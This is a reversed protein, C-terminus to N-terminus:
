GRSWLLRGKKLVKRALVFTTAVPGAIQISKMVWKLKDRKYFVYSLLQGAARVRFHWQGLWEQHKFSSALRHEAEDISMAKAKTTLGEHSGRRYLYLADALYIVNGHQALRVYADWDQGCPLSEDFGRQQVVDTRVILGSAGCYPNGRKLKSLSVLGSPPGLHAEGNNLYRYSCLAAIPQIPSEVHSLARMQRYIKDSLWVDDDDLFAVWDSQAMSAGFNRAANAGRNKDFRFYRIEGSLSGEEAGVKFENVVARLDVDSCDDIVIIERLPVSQSLASDLAYRLYDSRNYATIIASVSVDLKSGPVPSENLTDLEDPWSVVAESGNM